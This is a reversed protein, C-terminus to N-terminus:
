KFLGFFFNSVKNTKLEIFALVLPITFYQSDSGFSHIVMCTISFGIVMILFLKWCGRLLKGLGNTITSTKVNKVMDVFREDNNNM